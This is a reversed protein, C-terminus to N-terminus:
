ACTLPPPSPLPAPWLPPALKWYPSRPEGRRLERLCVRVRVVWARASTRGIEHLGETRGPRFVSHQAVPTSAVAPATSPLPPPHSSLPPPPPASPPGGGSPVGTMRVKGSGVRVHCPFRWMRALMLLGVKM